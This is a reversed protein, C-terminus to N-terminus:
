AFAMELADHGMEQAVYALTPAVYPFTPAVFCMTLDVYAMTPAVDFSSQFAHATLRPDNVTSRPGHASFLACIVTSPQCGRSNSGNKNDTLWKSAPGCCRGARRRRGAVGFMSCQVNFLLVVLVVWLERLKRGPKPSFGNSKCWFQFSYLM